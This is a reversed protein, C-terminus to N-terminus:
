LLKRMIAGVSVFSGFVLIRDNKAALKQAAALAAIPDSFKEVVTQSDLQFLADALVDATAGRPPPMDVVYWVDVTNLLHVLCEAHSKDQMMGVIAITQGDISDVELTAALERTAEPNHAVDLLLQPSTSIKQYRGPLKVQQLGYNIADDALPLKDKLLVAAMLATATNNKQHQGQLRPPLLEGISGHPSNFRCHDNECHFSFEQGRLYLRSKLDHAMKLLTSPPEADGCVAPKDARFIGSKEYGISERDNGLWQRHDIGISCVVAVDGDFINVADLRGGLGVELIAVDTQHHRFIDMAALTGYEFYTLRVDECATDVHEFATVLKEDSVSEGDIRVREAYALLHPSTYAAVTYGASLYISELMAVVSGKGNTGGVTIIPFSITTLGM